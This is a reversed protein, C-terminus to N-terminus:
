EIELSLIKVLKELRYIEAKLANVELQRQIDQNQEISLTNKLLKIQNILAEQESLKNTQESIVTKNIKLLEECINYKKEYNIKNFSFFNLFGNDFNENNKDNKNIIPSESFSPIPEEKLEKKTQNHKTKNKEDSIRSVIKSFKKTETRKFERSKLDFTSEEQNSCSIIILYFILITIHM